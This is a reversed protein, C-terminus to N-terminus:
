HMSTTAYTGSSTSCALRDIDEDELIEGMLGIVKQRFRRNQKETMKMMDPLLSRLFLLNPNEEANNKNEKQKVWEVFARSADDDPTSKSSNSSTQQYFQKKKYLHSHTLIMEETDSEETVYRSSISPNPSQTRVNDKTDTELGEPLEAVQNTEDDMPDSYDFDAQAELNGFLKKRKTYPVLFQLYKSLYYRKKSNKASRDPPTKLSRLFATRINRWRERCNSVTENIEEAIEAWAKETTDRKSYEQLNFNWICPHREVVRVFKINFLSDDWAVAM